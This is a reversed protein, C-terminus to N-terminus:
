KSVDSSGLMKEKRDYNANAVLENYEEESVHKFNNLIPVVVLQFPLKALPQIAGIENLSISPGVRAMGIKIEGTFGADIVGARIAYPTKVISGRELILGVYGKPIIVRLGTPILDDVTTNYYYNHSANYLDLGASLGYAPKYESLSTNNKKLAEILLDSAYFPINM